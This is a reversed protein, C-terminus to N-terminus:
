SGSRSEQTSKAAKERANACKDDASPKTDQTSKTKNLRIKLRTIPRDDEDQGRSALKRHLDLLLLYKPPVPGLEQISYLILCSIDAKAHKWTRCTQHIM